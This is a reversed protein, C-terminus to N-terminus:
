LPAYIELASKRIPKRIKRILAGQLENVHLEEINIQIFYLFDKYKFRQQTALKSPSKTTTTKTKTKTGEIIRM